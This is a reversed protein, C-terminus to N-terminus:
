NFDVNFSGNSVTKLDTDDQNNRGTFSFTGQVNTETVASINIEGNMSDSYPASWTPSAQPNQLNIETYLGTAVVSTAGGNINYTGEGDFGIIQLTINRGINDSGTIIVTTSNQATIRQAQTAQQTSQFNDSGDPNAQITGNAAEGSNGGDDDSSCSMVLGMLAFVMVIHKLTKM